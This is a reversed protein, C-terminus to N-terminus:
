SFLGPFDEEMDVTGSTNGNKLDEMGSDIMRLTRVDIQDISTTPDSPGREDGSSLRARGSDFEAKTRNPDPITDTALATM